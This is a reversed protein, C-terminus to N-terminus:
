EAKLLRRRDERITHDKRDSVMQEQSLAHRLVVNEAEILGNDRSQRCIADAMNDITRM